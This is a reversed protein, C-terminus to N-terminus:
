LITGNDSFHISSLLKTGGKEVCFNIYNKLLVLIVIVMGLGNFIIM